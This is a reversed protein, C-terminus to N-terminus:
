TEAGQQAALRGVLGGGVVPGPEAIRVDVRQGALRPGRLEGVAGGGPLQPGLGVADDGVLCGVDRDEVCAHGSEDGRTRPAHKSATRPRHGPRASRPPGTTRPEASPPSSGSTTRSAPSSRQHRTLGRLRLPAPRHPGRHQLLGRRRPRPPLARGPTRLRLRQSWPPPTKPRLAKPPSAAPSTAPRHPGPPPSHGPTTAPTEVRRDSTMAHHCAAADHRLTKAEGAPACGPPVPPHRAAPPTRPRSSAALEQAQQPAPTRAPTGGLM